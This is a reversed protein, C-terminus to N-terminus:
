QPRSDDRLKRSMREADSRYEAARQAWLHGDNLALAVTGQRTLENKLRKRESAKVLNENQLRWSV